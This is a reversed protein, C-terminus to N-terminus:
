FLRIANKGEFKYCPVNKGKKSPQKDFITMDEIKLRISIEHVGKSRTTVGTIDMDYSYGVIMHTFQSFPIDVGGNLILAKTNGGGSFKNDQYFIGFFVPSFINYFGGTFIKTGAQYDFRAVPSFYFSVGSKKKSFDIPIMSGYHVTYRMPLRADLNQFSEDPRTLHQVAFGISNHAEYRGIDFSFQSMVGTSLDFFHVNDRIVSVVSEGTIGGVPDIQDSFVLRDADVRKNMYAAGLGINVNWNKTLRLIYAYTGGLHTSSYINSARDQWAMIGFGSSLRDSRIDAAFGYTSFAKYVQSWQNRYIMAMNLGPESGSTSPNLYLKYAYFQSFVPDQAHAYPLLLAAFVM